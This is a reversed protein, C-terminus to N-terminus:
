PRRHLKMFYRQQEVLGSTDTRRHRVHAWDALLRNAAAWKEEDSRGRAEEEQMRSATECGEVYRRVYDKQEEFTLPPRNM